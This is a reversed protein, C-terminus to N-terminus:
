IPNCRKCMNTEHNTTNTQKCKTCIHIQRPDMTQPGHVPCKYQAMDCTECPANTPAKCNAIIAYCNCQIFKTCNICGSCWPGELCRNSCLIPDYHARTQPIALIRPQTNNTMNENKLKPHTKHTM